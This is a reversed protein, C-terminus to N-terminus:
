FQWKTGNTFPAFYESIGLERDLEGMKAIIEGYSVWPIPNGTLQLSMFIVPVLYAIILIIYQAVQTWTIGKMGGLASYVAILVVGIM